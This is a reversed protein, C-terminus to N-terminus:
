SIFFVMMLSCFLIARRSLLVCDGEGSEIESESESQHHWQLCQKNVAVITIAHKYSSFKNEEKARVTYISPITKSILLQM